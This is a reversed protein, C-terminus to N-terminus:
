IHAKRRSFKGNKKLSAIKTDMSYKSTKWIYEQLEDLRGYFYQYHARHPSEILDEVCQSFMSYINFLCDIQVFDLKELQLTTDNNVASSDNNLAIKCQGHAIKNRIRSPEIIYREMIRLLEQKKNAIDGKNHATEIALFALEICKKWKCEISSANRIQEIYEESFGYPTNILKTFEAEAYVSYMLAYTKTLANIEATREFALAENAYRKIISVYKKLERTNKVSAQYVELM